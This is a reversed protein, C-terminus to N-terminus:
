IEVLKSVTIQSICRYGILFRKGFEYAGDDGNVSGISWRFISCCIFLFREAHAELVEILGPIRHALKDDVKDIGFNYGSAVNLTYGTDLTLDMALTADEPIVAGIYDLQDQNLIGADSDDLLVVGALGTFYWGGEDEEASYANFSFVLLLSFLSVFILKKM